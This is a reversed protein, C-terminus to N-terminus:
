KGELFCAITFAKRVSVSEGRDECGTRGVRACCDSFALFSDDFVLALRLKVLSSACGYLLAGALGTTGGPGPVM